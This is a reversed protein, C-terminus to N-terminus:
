IKHLQRPQQQQHHFKKGLKKRELKDVKHSQDLRFKDLEDCRYCNKSIYNVKKVELVGGYRQKIIETNKYDYIQVKTDIPFTEKHNINPLYYCCEGNGTHNAIHFGQFKDNFTATAEINWGIYGLTFKIASKDVKKVFAKYYKGAARDRFEIKDSIRCNLCFINSVVVIIHTLCLVMVDVDLIAQQFVIWLITINMQKLINKNNTVLMM